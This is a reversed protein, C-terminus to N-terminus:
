PAMKKIEQVLDFDVDDTRQMIDERGEDHARKLEQRMSEIEMLRKKMVALSAIIPSIAKEAVRVIRHEMEKMAWTLGSSLQPVAEPHQSGM